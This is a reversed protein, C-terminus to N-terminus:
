PAATAGNKSAPTRAMTRRSPALSTAAQHDRGQVPAPRGPSRGNSRHTRAMVPSSPPPGAERRREFSPCDGTRGRQRWCGEVPVKTPRGPSSGRALLKFFTGRDTVSGRQAVRICTSYGLTGCQAADLGLSCGRTTPARYPVISSLGPGRTNLGLEMREVSGPRPAATPGGGFPM